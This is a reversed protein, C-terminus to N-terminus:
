RFNGYVRIMVYMRKCIQTTLFRKSISVYVKLNVDWWESVNVITLGLSAELNDQHHSDATASLQDMM